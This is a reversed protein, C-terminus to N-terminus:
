GGRKGESIEIEGEVLPLGPFGTDEKKPIEADEALSFLTDPAFICKDTHPYLKKNFQIIIFGDDTIEAGKIVPNKPM